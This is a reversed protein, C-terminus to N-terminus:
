LLIRARIASWGGVITGDMELGMATCPWTGLLVGPFSRYKRIPLRRLEDLWNVIINFQDPQSSHPAAANKIIPFRKGDASFPILAEARASM